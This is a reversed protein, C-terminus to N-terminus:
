NAQSADRGSRIYGFVGSRKQTDVIEETDCKLSNSLEEAIKRTNGTRSYFIVSTKMIKNKHSPDNLIIKIYYKFFSM